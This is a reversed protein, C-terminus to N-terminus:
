FAQVKLVQVKVLQTMAKKMIMSSMRNAREWKEFKNRQDATNADTLAARQYHWDLDMVGLVIDADDKSKKFNSGILKEINTFNLSTM